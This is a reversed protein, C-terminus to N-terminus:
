ALEAIPGAMARLCVPQPQGQQCLPTLAQSAACLIAKQESARSWGQESPAQGPGEGRVLEQPRFSPPGERGAESQM